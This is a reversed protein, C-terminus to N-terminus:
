WDEETLQEIFIINTSGMMRAVLENRTTVLIKSGHLGHNLPLITGM